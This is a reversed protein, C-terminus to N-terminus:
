PQVVKRYFWMAYTHSNVGYRTPSGVMAPGYPDYGAKVVEERVFDFLFEETSAGLTGIALVEMYLGHLANMPSVERPRELFSLKSTVRMLGRARNIAEAMQQMRNDLTETWQGSIEQVAAYLAEAAELLEPAAQDLLAKKRRADRRRTACERHSCLENTCRPQIPQIRYCRDKYERTVGLQELWQEAKEQSDFRGASIGTETHVIEHTKM